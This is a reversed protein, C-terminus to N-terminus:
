LESPNSISVRGSSVPAELVRLNQMAASILTGGSEHETPPEWSRLVDSSYRPDDGYYGKAIDKRFQEPSNYIRLAAVHQLSWPQILEKFHAHGYEDFMRWEIFGTRMAQDDAVFLWAQKCTLRHEEAMGDKCDTLYMAQLVQSADDPLDPDSYYCADLELM